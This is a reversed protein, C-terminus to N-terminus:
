EDIVVKGKFGIKELHTELVKVSDSGFGSVHMEVNNRKRLDKLKPSRLYSILEEYNNFSERKSPDNNSRESFSYNEGWVAKSVYVNKM